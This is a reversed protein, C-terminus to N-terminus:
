HLDQIKSRRVGKPTTSEPALEGPCTVDACGVDSLIWSPRTSLAKRQKRTEESDVGTELTRLTWVEEVSSASSHRIKSHYEFSKQTDDHYHNSLRASSLSSQKIRTDRIVGDKHMGSEM